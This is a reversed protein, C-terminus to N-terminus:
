QQRRKPQVAPRQYYHGMYNFVTQHGTPYEDKSGEPNFDAQAAIANIRRNAQIAQNGVNQNVTQQRLQPQVLTSYNLGGNSAGLDNRFLNLYPSVTPQPAYSSFPKKGSGIVPAGVGVGFGAFRRQNVAQQAYGGMGGANSALGGSGLISNGRLGGSGMISNGRLGGAGRIGYGYQACAQPALALLLLL